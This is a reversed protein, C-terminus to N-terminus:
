LQQNDTLLNLAYEFRQSTTLAKQQQEQLYEVFRNKIYNAVECLEEPSFAIIAEQAFFDAANLHPPLPAPIEDPMKNGPAPIISEFSVKSQPVFHSDKM